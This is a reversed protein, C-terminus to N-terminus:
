FGACTHLCVQAYDSRVSYQEESLTKMLNQISLRRDRLKRLEIELKGVEELYRKVDVDDDYKKTEDDADLGEKNKEGEMGGKEAYFRKMDELWRRLVRIRLVIEAERQNITDLEYMYADEQQKYEEDKAVADRQM